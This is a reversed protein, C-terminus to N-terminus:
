EIELRRSPSVTETKKPLNLKLIGNDYKATIEDAKIESINFSRSYSGYYRECRIYNKKEDKEENESKHEASVTMMDGDIDIKIDDKEFGPLEAELLYSDGKDQIDTKIGSFAVTGLDNNEFFAREMREMDRFPNFTMYDRNRHTYPRLEFMIFDEM